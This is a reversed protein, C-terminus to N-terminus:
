LGEGPAERHHAIHRDPAPLSNIEKDSGLKEEGAPALCLHRASVPCSRHPWPCMGLCDAKAALIGM